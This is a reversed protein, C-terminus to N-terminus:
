SHNQRTKHDLLIPILVWNNLQIWSEAIGHVAAWWAKRDMPNDWCSYQLPNGNGGGIPIFSVAIVWFLYYCILEFSLCFDRALLKYSDCVNGAHSTGESVDSEAVRHVIARWAGRDSPIRWALISSHTAMGEELSDKWGLSWIRDRIDGASALHM